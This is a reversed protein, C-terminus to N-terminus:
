EPINRTARTRGAEGEEYARHIGLLGPKVESTFATLKATRHKGTRRGKEFPAPLLLFPMTVLDPRLV